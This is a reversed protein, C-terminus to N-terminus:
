IIFRYSAANSTWLIFPNIHAFYPPSAPYLQGTIAQLKYERYINACCTNRSISYRSHAMWNISPLQANEYSSLPRIRAVPSEGTSEHRQLSSRLLVQIHILLIWDLMAGNLIKYLIKCLIYALIRSVVTNEERLSPVATSCLIGNFSLRQLSFCFPCVM